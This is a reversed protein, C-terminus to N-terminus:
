PIKCTVGGAYQCPFWALLRLRAESVPLSARRTRTGYVNGTCCAMMIMIIIIKGPGAQTVRSAAAAGGRSLSCPQWTPALQRAAQQEAAAKFHREV